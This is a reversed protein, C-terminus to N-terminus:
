KSEKQASTFAALRRHVQVMCNYHDGGHYAHDDCLAVVAAILEARAADIASPTEVEPEVEPERPNTDGLDEVIDYESPGGPYYSGDDMCTHRRSASGLMRWHPMGPGLQRHMPGVTIGNRLRYYHGPKIRITM